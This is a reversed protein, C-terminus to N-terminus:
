TNKPLGNQSMYILMVLGAAAHSYHDLGTEPDSVEGQRRKSLHRLVAAFLRDQELKTWNWPEYKEAGYNFVKVIEDISAFPLLDYRLKGSDYKIGNM